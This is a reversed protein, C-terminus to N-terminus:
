CSKYAALPLLFFFDLLRKKEREHFNERAFDRPSGVKFLPSESFSSVGIFRFRIFVELWIVREENPSPSSLPKEREQTTPLTNKSGRFL